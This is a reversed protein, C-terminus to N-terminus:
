PECLFKVVTNENVLIAAGVKKGLIYMETFLFADLTIHDKKKKTAKSTSILSHNLQFALFDLM